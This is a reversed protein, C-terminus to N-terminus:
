TPQLEPAYFVRSPTDAFNWASIIWLTLPYIDSALQLAALRRLVRNLVRSSSRGKATVCSSVRSDLVHFFRINYYSLDRTAARVFNFFAFLELVNIHQTTAWPYSQLVSWSWAPAPYPLAQRAADLITGIDLRVDSGRHDLQAYLSRLHQMEGHPQISQCFKLVESTAAAALGPKALGRTSRRLATYIWVRQEDLSLPLLESSFKRVSAVLLFTLHERLNEAEPSQPYLADVRWPDPVQSLSHIMFFKAGTGVTFFLEATFVGRFEVLRQLFPAQLVMSAWTVVFVFPTGKKICAEGICSLQKALDWHIQEGRIRSRSQLFVLYAAADTM